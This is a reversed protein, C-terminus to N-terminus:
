PQVAWPVSKVGSALDANIIGSATAFTLIPYVRIIERRLIVSMEWRDIWVENVLDPVRMAETTEVFNMNVSRLSERNQSIEFGDRLASSNDDGNPGYFTCKIELEEHRLTFNANPPSATAPTIGIVANADAKIKGFGFALWNIDGDPQKPPNRQWEPRVLTPDFGTIGVLVTQLFQKFTLGNPYPSSTSPRLYGGSASTNPTSM